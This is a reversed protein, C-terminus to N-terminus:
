SSNREISVDGETYYAHGGGPVGSYDMVVGDLEGPNGMPYFAWGGTTGTNSRPKVAYVNLTEMGGRRYQEKMQREVVRERDNVNVNNFYDDNVETQTTHLKFVFDPRFANNLFEIQANV